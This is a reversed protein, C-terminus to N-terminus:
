QIQMVQATHTSPCSINYVLQMSSLVFSTLRAAQIQDYIWEYNVRLERQSNSIEHQQSVTCQVTLTSPVASVIHPCQTPPPKDAGEVILHSM